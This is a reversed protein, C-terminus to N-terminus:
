KTEAASNTPALRDLVGNIFRPATEDSFKKAVEIAENIAVARPVDARHRIEYLAVRLINRELRGVREPTWNELATDIEADLQSMNDSVGQILATAYERATSRVPQSEFFAEIGDEWPDGTFDLGFLYQAARERAIRRAQPSASM